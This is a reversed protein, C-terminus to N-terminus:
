RDSEATLMNLNDWRLAQYVILSSLKIAEDGSSITDM